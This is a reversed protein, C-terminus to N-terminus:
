ALAWRAQLRGDSGLEWRLSLQPEAAPLGDNHPVQAPAAPVFDLLSNILHLHYAM